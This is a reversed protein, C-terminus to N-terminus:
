EKDEKKWKKKLNYICSKSIELLKAAKVVNGDCSDIAKLIVEKEIEKLPCFRNVTVLESSSIETTSVTDSIFHQVDEDMRKAIMEATIVEEENLLVLNHISNELQRVNGEWNYSLLKKEAEASFGQFSKDEEKAFKHLFFNALLLIDQGRECLPPLNLEITNIRYYLDQRFRGAEVEALLNRNTAFILRVDIQEQKHSGLQSFTKEQLFRLLASQMELPLEGIEDLFLTGGAAKAVLGEQNNIAGTFAGKLHGFLISERLAEPITTCDCVVFPKDALESQKHIAEACLEKGTGTEGTILIPANSNAVKDITKYVTQIPESAGIFRHYRDLM